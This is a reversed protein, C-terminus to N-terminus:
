FTIDNKSEYNDVPTDSVQQEAIRSPYFDSMRNIFDM